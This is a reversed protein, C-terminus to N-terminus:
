KYASKTVAAALPDVKKKKPPVPATPRVTGSASAIPQPAAKVTGTVVGWTNNLRNLAEAGAGSEAAEDITKGEDYRSTMVASNLLAQLKAREEEQEKTLPKKPGKKAPKNERVEERVPSKEKKRAADPAACQPVRAAMKAAREARKEEVKRRKEAEEAEKAAKRAAKAEDAAKREEARTQM